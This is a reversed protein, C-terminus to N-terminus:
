DRVTRVCRVSLGHETTGWFHDLLPSDDRFRMGTAQYVIGQSGSGDLRSLYWIGAESEVALSESTSWVGGAPRVGWHYPDNSNNASSNWLELGPVNAKLYRAAGLYLTGVDNEDLAKAFAAPEEQQFIFSYLADMDGNDPLHWGSPCIGPFVQEMAVVVYMDAWGNGMVDNWTYWRGWGQDCSDPIGCLGLTNNASYNLNEALWEQACIRVTSYEQQDREDTITGMTVGHYGSGCTFSSSSYMAM